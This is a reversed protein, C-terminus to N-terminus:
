AVDSWTTHAEQIGCSVVGRRMLRVDEGTEPNTYDVYGLSTRQGRAAGLTNYPGFYETVTGDTEVYRRRERDWKRAKSVLVVRYVDQGAGVMQRAM